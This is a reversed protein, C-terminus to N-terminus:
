AFINETVSYVAATGDLAKFYKNGTIAPIM